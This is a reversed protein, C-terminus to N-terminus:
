EGVADAPSAQEQHKEHPTGGKNRLGALEELSIDLAKAIGIFATIRPEGRCSEWHGINREGVGARRGLERQSLGAELRCAKIRKAIEESLVIDQTTM